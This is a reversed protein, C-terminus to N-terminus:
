YVEFDWEVEIWLETAEPSFKVPISLSLTLWLFGTVHVFDASLRLRAAEIHLSSSLVGVLICEMSFICFLLIFSQCDLTNQGYYSEEWTGTWGSSTTCTLRQSNFGWWVGCRKRKNKRHTVYNFTDVRGHWLKMFARELFVFSFCCVYLFLSFKPYYVSSHKDSLFVHTNKNLIKGAEEDPHSRKQSLTLIKETFSFLSGNKNTLGGVCGTGTLPPM